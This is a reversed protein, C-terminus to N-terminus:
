ALYGSVGDDCAVKIHELGTVHTHREPQELDICRCGGLPRRILRGADSILIVVIAIHIPDTPKVAAARGAVRPDIRGHMFLPGPESFLVARNELEEIVPGARKPDGTDGIRSACCRHDGLSQRIPQAIHPAVSPSLLGPRVQLSIGTRDSGITLPMDVPARWALRARDPVSDDTAGHIGASASLPMRTKM